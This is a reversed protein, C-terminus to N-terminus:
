RGLRYCQEFHDATNGRPLLIEYMKFALRFSHTLIFLFVIAALVLRTNEKSPPEINDLIKKELYVKRSDIMRAAEEEELTKKKYPPCQNEVVKNQYELCIKDETLSKQM